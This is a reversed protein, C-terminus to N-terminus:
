KKDVIQSNTTSAVLRMNFDINKEKAFNSIPIYVSKFYPDAQLASSFAVLASRFAARGAIDITPPVDKSPTYTIATVRINQPKKLIISEILKSPYVSNDYKTLVSIASSIDKISEVSTGKESANIKSDLDTKKVLAEKYTSYSIVYVPILFTASIITVVCVGVSLVIFVRKTYEKVVKTKQEEPLLNLM